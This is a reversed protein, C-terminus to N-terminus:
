QKKKQNFYPEVSWQSRPGSPKANNGGRAELKFLKTAFGDNKVTVHKTVARNVRADM